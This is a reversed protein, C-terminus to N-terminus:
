AGKDPKMVDGDGYLLRAVFSAARDPNSPRSLASLAGGSLGLVAGALSAAALAEVDHSGGAAVITVVMGVLGAFLAILADRDDARSWLALAAVPAVAATSLGLALALLARPDFLDLASAASGAVAVTVLAVRTTALRRSTLDTEGRMHYVAEHGLATGFAQLGAAGLALALAIQASALLGSAAAGLNELAPLSTLLFDRSVGFDQPRLSVGAGVGKAACARLASSPDPTRAGCITVLGHASATYLAGPLRGPPEGVGQRTLSLTAGALTAAILWAFVFTWGFAAYGAMRASSPKRTTIAPGLLPALTAAGLMIAVAAAVDVGYGSSPAIAAWGELQAAAERWTSGGADSFPRVGRWALSLAPWGFGALAVAGAACATWITGLLGGPGAIALIGVGIVVAAFGRGSGLIGTLADVASQQAALAVLASSACALGIIALRPGLGPFRAGLLGSLSFAGSKRLIPGLFYGTLAVGAFLGGCVGILWPRTVLYAAFPAIVGAVLTAKAFGAYEAPVARGATYYYSARMSHLMAGLAGLALITFYPAATEVLAIPAGVRDLLAVFAYALLFAAAAFAIRGDLKEREVSDDDAAKTM